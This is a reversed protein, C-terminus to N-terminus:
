IKDYECQATKEDIGVIIYCRGTDTKSIVKIIASYPNLHKKLYSLMGESLHMNFVNSKLAKAKMEAIANKVELDNPPQGVGAEGWELVIKESM